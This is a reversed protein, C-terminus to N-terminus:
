LRTIVANIATKLSSSVNAFYSAKIEEGKEKTGTVSSEMSAIADRMANFIEATMEAGALVDSQGSSLLGSKRRCWDVKDILDNWKNPSTETGCM